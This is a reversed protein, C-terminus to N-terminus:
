GLQHKNHIEKVLCLEVICQWFKLLQFNNSCIQISFAPPVPPAVIVTHITPFYRVLYLTMTNYVNVRRASKSMICCQIQTFRFHTYSMIAMTLHPSLRSYSIWGDEPSCSLVYKILWSTMWCGSFYWLVGFIQSIFSERPFM